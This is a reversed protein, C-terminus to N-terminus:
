ESKMEIDRLIKERKWQKLDFKGERLEDQEGNWIFTVGDVNKKVHDNDNFLEIQCPRLQYQDTEYAILRDFHIRSRIGCMMGYVPVLPKGNVLASNPGWLKTEYRVVRAHRLVPPRNSLELVRYLTEPDMLTGYLFVHEREFYDTSMMIDETSERSCTLNQSPANESDDHSPFKGM